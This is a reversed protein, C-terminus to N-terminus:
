TTKFFIRGINGANASPLNSGYTNSDIFIEGKFTTRVNINFQTNTLFVVSTGYKMRVGANSCMFEGTNTGDTMHIGTTSSDGTSGPVYGIKGGITVLSADTYVKLEGSLNINTDGYETINGNADKTNPEKYIAYGNRNGLRFAGTDVNWYNYADFQLTGTNIKNANINAQSISNTSIVNPSIYQQVGQYTRGIIQDAYIKSAVVTETNILGGDITTTRGSTGDLDSFTVLGNMEITATQDQKGDISM